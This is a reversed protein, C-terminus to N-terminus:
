VLSRYIWSETERERERHLRDKERKRSKKKETKKELTWRKVADCDVKRSLIICLSPCSIPLDVSVWLLIPLRSLLAISPVFLQRLPLSGVGAM